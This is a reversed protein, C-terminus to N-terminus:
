PVALSFKNSLWSSEVSIRMEKIRTFNVNSELIISYLSILPWYSKVTLLSGFMLKWIHVNRKPFRRQNFPRTLENPIFVVSYWVFLCVFLFFFLDVYTNHSSAIFYHSLPRTMDQNVRSHEPNFIDGEPGLLYSTFGTIHYWVLFSFLSFQSFLFIFLFFRSHPIGFERGGCVCM